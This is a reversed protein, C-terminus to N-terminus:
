IPEGDIPPSRLDPIGDTPYNHKRAHGCVGKPKSAIEEARLKGKLDEFAQQALPLLAPCTGCSSGEQKLHPALADMDVDAANGGVDDRAAKFARALGMKDMQSCKM